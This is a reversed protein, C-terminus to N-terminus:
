YNWPNRSTGTQHMFQSSNFFFDKVFNNRKEIRILYACFWLCMKKPCLGLNWWYPDSFWRIIRFSGPSDIKTQLSKDAFMFSRSFVTVFGKRFFEYVWVHSGNFPEKWQQVLKWTITVFNFTNIKDNLSFFVKEIGEGVIHDMFWTVSQTGNLLIPFNQLMVWKLRNWIKGKHTSIALLMFFESQIYLIL